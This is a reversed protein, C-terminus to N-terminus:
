ILCLFIFGTVCMLFGLILSPIAICWLLISLLCLWGIIHLAYGSAILIIAWRKYILHPPQPGYQPPGYQLPPGYQPPFQQGQM